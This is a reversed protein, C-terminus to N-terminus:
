LSITTITIIIVIMVVVVVLVVIIIIVWCPLIWLRMYCYVYAQFFFFRVCAVSIYVCCGLCVSMFWLYVCEYTVCWEPWWVRWMEGAACRFNHRWQVPIPWFRLYRFACSQGGKTWFNHGFRKSYSVKQETWQACNPIKHLFTSNLFNLFIFFTGM